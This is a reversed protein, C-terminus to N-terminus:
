NIESLRGLAEQRRVDSELVYRLMSDVINKLKIEYQLSLMKLQRHLEPDLSVHKEKLVRCKGPM